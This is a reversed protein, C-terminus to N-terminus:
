VPPVQIAGSDLGLIIDRLSARRSVVFEIDGYGETLLRAALGQGAPATIRLGEPTEEIHLAFPAALARVESRRETAVRLVEPQDAVLDATAGAFCTEGRRVMLLRDARCAIEVSRTALVAVGGAGAREEAQRLLVSELWADPPDTALDVAFVKGRDLLAPLYAVACVAEPPWHRPAQRYAADLGLRAVWTLVESTEHGALWEGIRKRPPPEVPGLWATSRSEGEYYLPVIRGLARHDVLVVGIEGPWVGWDLPRLKGETILGAGAVPLDM